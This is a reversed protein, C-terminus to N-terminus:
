SEPKGGRRWVIEGAQLKPLFLQWRIRTCKRGVRIVGHSEGLPALREYLTGLKIGLRQAVQEPTLLEDDSANSDRDNPGPQVAETGAALASLIASCTRLVRRREDATLTAALRPDWALRDLSVPDGLRQKDRREVLLNNAAQRKM